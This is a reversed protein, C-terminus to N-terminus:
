KEETLSHRLWARGGIVTFILGSVAFIVSVYTFNDSRVSTILSFGVVCGSVILCHLDIMNKSVHATIYGGLSMIFFYSIAGAIYSVNSGLQSYEPYDKLLNTYGTALLLFVLQFTLGMVVISAVGIILAKFSINKM